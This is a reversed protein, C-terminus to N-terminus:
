ALLVKDKMYDFYFKTLESLIVNEWKVPDFVITEVHLDKLTYVVFDIETTETIAMLGQFQYFYM